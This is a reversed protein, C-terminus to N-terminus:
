YINTLYAFSHIFTYYVFSNRGEGEMALTLWSDQTLSETQSIPVLRPPSFWLCDLLSSNFGLASLLRLSRRGISPGGVRSEDSIFQGNM